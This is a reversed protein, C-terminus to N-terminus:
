RRHPRTPHKGGICHAFEEGHLRLLSWEDTWRRRAFPPAIITCETESHVIACGTSGRCVRRVDAYEMPRYHVTLTIPEQAPLAWTEAPQGEMSLALLATLLTAHTTM